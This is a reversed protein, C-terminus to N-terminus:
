TQTRSAGDDDEEDDDIGMNMIELFDSLCSIEDQYKAHIRGLMELSQDFDCAYEKSIRKVHLVSVFLNRDERGIESFRKANIMKQMNRM